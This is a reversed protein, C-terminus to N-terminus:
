KGSASCETRQGAKFVENIRVDGSERNFLVLDAPAGPSLGAGQELGLFAAPRASAMEWARASSSHGTSTALTPPSGSSSGESTSAHSECGRRQVDSM